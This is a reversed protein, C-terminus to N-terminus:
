KMEVSYQQILITDGVPLMSLGEKSFSNNKGPYKVKYVDHIWVSEIMPINIKKGNRIIYYCEKYKFYKLYGSGPPAIYEDYYFPRYKYVDEIRFIPGFGSETIDQKEWYIVGADEHVSRLKDEKVKNITLEVSNESLYTAVIKGRVQESELNTLYSQYRNVVSNIVTSSTIEGNKTYVKINSETILDSSYIIPYQIPDKKCSNIGIILM